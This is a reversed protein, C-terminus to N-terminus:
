AGATMALKLEREQGRGLCLEAAALDIRPQRLEEDGQGVSVRQQDHVKAALRRTAPRGAEQPPHVQRRGIRRRVERGRCVEAPYLPEDVGLSGLVAGLPQV